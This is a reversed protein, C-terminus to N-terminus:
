QEAKSPQVTTFFDRTQANTAGEFAAELTRFNQKWDESGPILGIRNFKYTERARKVALKATYASAWRDSYKYIRKVGEVLAIALTLLIGISALVTSPIGLISASVPGAVSTSASGAVFVPALVSLVMTAVSLKRHWDGAVAIEDRYYDLSQSIAELLENEREDYKAQDSTFSPPVMLTQVDTM